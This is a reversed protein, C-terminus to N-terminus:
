GGEMARRLVDALVDRARVRDGDTTMGSAFAHLSNALDHLANDWTQDGYDGACLDVIEAAIREPQQAAHAEIDCGTGKCTACDAWVPPPNSDTLHGLLRGRAGACARCKSLGAALVRERRLAGDREMTLTAIEARAADREALVADLRLAAAELAARAAALEATLTAVEDRMNSRLEASTPLRQDNV